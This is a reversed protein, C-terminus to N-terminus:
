VVHFKFNPIEVIMVKRGYKRLIMILWNFATSSVLTGLSFWWVEGWTVLLKRLYGARSEDWATILSLSCASGSM